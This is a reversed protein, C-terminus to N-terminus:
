RARSAHDASATAIMPAGEPHPAGAARHRRAGAPRAALVPQRSHVGAVTRHRVGGRGGRSAEPRLSMSMPLVIFFVRLLDKLWHHRLTTTANLSEEIHHLKHQAWLIHWEHQSRHFWYYLFDDVFFIALTKWAGDLLSDEVEIESRQEGSRWIGPYLDDRARCVVGTGSKQRLSNHM